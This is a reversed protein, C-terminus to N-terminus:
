RPPEAFQYGRGRLTLIIRPDAGDDRLKERLRVIHMDVTRTEVAQPNLHWVRALIEDRSIARGANSSLYALLESERESISTVMGDDFRLERKGLDLTGGPFAIELPDSPRSPSRRLVAEIRALLELAGFPKVVYDDAGLKLGKVRDEQEGRATLIIVPVTKSHERVARLIELGDGGPLNLDLLLLDFNEGRALELGAIEDAAELTEYGNFRLSSLVGRRIAPDDEIVLIRQKQM